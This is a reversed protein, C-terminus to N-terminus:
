AELLEAISVRTGYPQPRPPFRLVRAVTGLIAPPHSEPRPRPVLTLWPRGDRSVIWRGAEVEAVSLDVARVWVHEGDEAEDIRVDEPHELGFFRAFGVATGPVPFPTTSALVTFYGTHLNRREPDGDSSTM